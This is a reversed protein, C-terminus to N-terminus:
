QQYFQFQDTTELFIENVMKYLPTVSAVKWQDPFSLLTIAQNFIHTLSDAIAPAAIKMIKCSIKDTGHLRKIAQYDVCYILYIMLLKLNSHLSSQNLNKVYTKFNCNPM